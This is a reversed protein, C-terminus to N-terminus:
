AADEAAGEVPRTAAIAADLQAVIERAQEFAVLRNRYAILGRRAEEVIQHYLDIEVVARETPVYGRRASGDSRKIVVNVYQPQLVPRRVISVRRVLARAQVLRFQSAAETDDWTFYRHLPSAPDAAVDVVTEPQIIGDQDDKSIRLLAEVVESDEIPQTM